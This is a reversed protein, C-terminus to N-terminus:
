DNKSGWFKEVFNKKIEESDIIEYEKPRPIFVKLVDIYLRVFLEPDTIEKMKDYFLPLNERLYSALEKRLMNQEYRMNADQNKRSTSSYSPLSSPVVEVAEVIEVDTTNQTEVNKKIKERTAKVVKLRKAQKERAKNM